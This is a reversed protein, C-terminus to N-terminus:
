SSHFFIIMFISINKNSRRLLTQYAWAFVLFLAFIEALAYHSVILAFTFTVFLVHKNFPSIKKSFMTFLLLVFFFEAVMQRALGLMETYFTAQAILLFAAIFATTKGISKEWVKYLVVPVLSFILPYLIKFVWTIDIGLLNSYLTPVITVSLMAYLRNYLEIDPFISNPNWSGAEQVKLAVFRELSIDSGFPVLYTSILSSQYLISISFVFIALPYLESPLVKKSLAVVFFLAALGAVTIMALLNNWYFDIWIAGIVSLVPVVLILIAMPSLKTSINTPLSFTEKRAFVLLAGAFTILSIFLLVPTISFPQPVGFMPSFTSLLLGCLMLFVISLGVSLLITTTKDLKDLKLLKVAIFGPIFTFYIFSIVQRAVPIDLFLTLFLTAQLFLFIALFVVPRSQTISVAM